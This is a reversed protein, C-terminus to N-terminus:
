GAGSRTNAAAMAYLKRQQITLRTDLALRLNIRERRAESYLAACIRHCKPLLEGSSIEIGHWGMGVLLGSHEDNLIDDYNLVSPLLYQPRMKSNYSLRTSVRGEMLPPHILYWAQVTGNHSFVVAGRSRSEILRM